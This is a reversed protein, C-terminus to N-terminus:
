DAIRLSGDEEMKIGFAARLRSKSAQEGLYEGYDEALIFIRKLIKPITLGGYIREEKYYGSDDKMSMAYGRVDEYLDLGHDATRVLNSWRDLEVNRYGM